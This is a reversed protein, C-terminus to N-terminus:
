FMAFSAIKWFLLWLRYQKEEVPCVNISKCFSPFFALGVQTTLMEPIRIGYNKESKWYVNEKIFSEMRTIEMLGRIAFIM